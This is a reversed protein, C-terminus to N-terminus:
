ASLPKETSSHVHRVAEACGTTTRATSTAPVLLPDHAPPRVTGIGDRVHGFTVTLLAASRWKAAYRGLDIDNVPRPPALSPPHIDYIQVSVRQPLKGRPQVRGARGTGSAMVMALAVLSAM